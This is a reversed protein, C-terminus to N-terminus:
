AWQELTDKSLELAALRQFRHRVQIAVVQQREIPRPIKGRLRNVARRTQLLGVPVPAHRISMLQQARRNDMRIIPFHDGQHRCRDHFLISRVVIITLAHGGFPENGFQTLSV